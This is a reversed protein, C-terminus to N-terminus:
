AVAVSKDGGGCLNAMESAVALPGAGAGLGGWLEMALLPSGSEEEQTIPQQNICLSPKQQPGQSFIGVGIVMIQPGAGACSDGRLEESFPSCGSEGEQVTPLQSMSEYRRISTPPEKQHIALSPRTAPTWWEPQPSQDNGAAIAPSGTGGCFGGQPEGPPQPRGSKEGGMKPQQNVPSSPEQQPRQWFIGIGKAMALSSAIAWSSEQPQHEDVGFLHMILNGGRESGFGGVRPGGEHLYDSLGDATWDGPVSGM